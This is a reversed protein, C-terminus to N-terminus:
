DNTSTSEKRLDYVRLFEDVKLLSKLAPKAAAADVTLDAQMSTLWLPETILKHILNHKTETLSLHLFYRLTAAGGNWTAVADLM